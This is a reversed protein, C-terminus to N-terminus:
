EDYYGRADSGPYPERVHPFRPDVWDSRAALGQLEPLLKRNLSPALNARVGYWRRRRTNWSAPRPSGYEPGNWQAPRFEALEKPVRLWPRVGSDDLRGAM